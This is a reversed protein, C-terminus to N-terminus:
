GGWCVDEREGYVKFYGLKSPPYAAESIGYICVPELSTGEGGMHSNNTRSRMSSTEGWLQVIHNRGVLACIPVM